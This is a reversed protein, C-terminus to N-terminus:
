LLHGGIENPKGLPSRLPTTKGWLGSVTSQTPPKSAFASFNTARSIEADRGLKESQQIQFETRTRYQVHSFHALTALFVKKKNKKTHSS